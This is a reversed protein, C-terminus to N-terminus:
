KKKKLYSALRFASFVLVFISILQFLTLNFIIIKNDARAFEMLFRKISYLFLYAYFVQGERHPKSQLLRLIVFILLLLLSSILQAPILGKGFCCGNLFCGIRGLSQALALFPVGLDLVKYVRENKRRIYIIGSALGLFFGGFWSMGGRNVLIIELPSKLYYSLNELVFFIRAGIIGFIFVIFYLNFIFDPKLGQRKAEMSAFSVAVFFALALMAGYSYVTFPGITCLEPHM